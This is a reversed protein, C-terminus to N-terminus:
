TYYFIIQGTAGDVGSSSFGFGGLGGDGAANSNWGVVPAGGSGIDGSGGTTNTTTGGSATGGTGGSLQLGGGGGVATMTTISKTGSSVSSNGGAVGPGGDPIGGGGFAGVTYTLTQGGSIAVSTESYGGAGGGGGSEDVDSFWGGAGGGGGGWVAIIVNTAGAPATETAGTGSTYTRTVPTFTFASQRIRLNTFTVPM